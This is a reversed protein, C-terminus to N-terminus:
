AFVASVPGGVEADHQVRRREWRARALTESPLEGFQQKYDRAFRSMHSFGFFPAIDSVRATGRSGILEHRVENLALSRFFRKPPIGYRKRFAYTLARRSFGTVRCMQVVSVPEHTALYTTVLTEILAVASTADSSDPAGVREGCGIVDMLQLEMERALVRDVAREKLSVAVVDRVHAGRGPLMRLQPAISTKEGLPHTALDIFSVVVSRPIVVELPLKAQEPAAAYFAADEAPMEIGTIRIPTKAGEGAILLARDVRDISVRMAHSFKVRLIRFRGADLSEHEAQLCGPELQWISACRGRLLSAVDELDSRLM